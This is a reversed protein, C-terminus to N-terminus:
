NKVDDKVKDETKNLGSVDMIEDAIIYVEANFLKECLDKPTTVGFKKQLEENKLDQEVIGHLCCLLNQEYGDDGNQGRSMQKIQNIRRGDIEQITIEAYDEGIVRGLRKSKIKKTAKEIQQKSTALLKEVLNM